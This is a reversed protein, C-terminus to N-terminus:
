FYFRAQWVVASQAALGHHLAASVVQDAGTGHGQEWARSNHGDTGIKEKKDFLGDFLLSM